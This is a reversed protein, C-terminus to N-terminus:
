MFITASVSGRLAARSRACFMKRKSGPSRIIRNPIPIYSAASEGPRLPQFTQEAEIGRFDRLLDAEPLLLDVGLIAGAGVLGFARKAERTTMVFTALTWVQTPVLVSLAGVWVYILVFVVGTSDPSGSPGMVARASWWFVVATAAFMLLSAIQVNRLNTRAGLRIYAGAILGVLVAVAIDVYPLSTAPFRDLFMADRAAKSAVSGAM